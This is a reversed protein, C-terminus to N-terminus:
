ICSLSSSLVGLYLIKNIYVIFDLLVGINFKDMIQGGRNANGYNCLSGFVCEEHLMVGLVCVFLHVCVLYELVHGEQCPLDVFPNQICHCQFCM